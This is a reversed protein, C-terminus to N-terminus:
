VATNELNMNRYLQKFICKLLDQSHHYNDCVMNEEEKVWDIFGEEEVSLSGQVINQPIVMAYTAIWQFCPILSAESLM